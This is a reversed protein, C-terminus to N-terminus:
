KEREGASLAPSPICPRGCALYPEVVSSWGLEEEKEMPAASLYTGLCAQSSNGVGGQCKADETSRRVTSM